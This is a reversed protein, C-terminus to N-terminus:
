LNMSIYHYKLDQKMYSGLIGKNKLYDLISYLVLILSISKIKKLLQSSTLHEKQLAELVLKQESSLRKTKM